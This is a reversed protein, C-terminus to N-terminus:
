EKHSVSENNNGKPDKAYDRDSFVLGTGCDALAPIGQKELGFHRDWIWAFDLILTSFGLGLDCDM